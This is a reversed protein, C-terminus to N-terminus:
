LKKKKIKNLERWKSVSNGTLEKPTKNKEM